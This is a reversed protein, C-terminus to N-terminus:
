IRGHGFPHEKDPPKGGIKFGILVVISTMVDSLTHFSDAILAISNLLTGCFFKFVFLLINGIISIWAELYGIFQRSPVKGRAALDLLRANLGMNGAM